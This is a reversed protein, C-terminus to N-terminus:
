SQMTAYAPRQRLKEDWLLNSSSSLTGDPGVSTTSVYPGGIGWTTFGTCNPAAICARFISSFQAAQAALSANNIAGDGNAATVDMESVRAKLGVSALQQMRRTLAAASMNQSPVEYVHGEFGIGTVPIGQRRLEVCKKFLAQFRAEDLGEDKDMANDNIWLEAGPDAAHAARFAETIFDEGLAQQWLTDRWGDSGSALAENVVDYSRVHGALPKMVGTIHDVIMQRVGAKPVATMWDPLSRNPLLAHGHVSMNNNQALRILLQEEQLTFKGEEPQAFKPKLANETTISSFNNGLLAAYREDGVWPAVAVAAGVLFGPRRRQAWDRLGGLCSRATLTRMDTAAVPAPQEGTAGKAEARLRTVHRRGGDSSTMGLWVTSDAFTEGGDPVVIKEGGITAVLNNGEKTFSLSRNTNWDSLVVDKSLVPERHVGDWREVTFIPGITIGPPSPIGDLDHYNNLTLRVGRRPFPFDDYTLPLQNNVFLSFKGVPSTTFDASVTFDGDFQLRTQANHSPMPEFVMGKGTYITGISDVTLTGDAAQTVGDVNWSTQLLDVAGQVHRTEAHTAADGCDPIPAPLTVDRDSSGLALGSAAVGTMTLFERRSMGSPGQESM